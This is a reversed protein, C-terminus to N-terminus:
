QKKLENIDYNVMDVIMQKFEKDGDPVFNIMKIAESSDGWINDNKRPRVLEQKIQIHEEWNLGQSTFAIDLVDLVSHCMESSFLLESPEHQMQTYYANVFTSARSWDRRAYIDGLQLATKPQNVVKDAVYKTIKRTLFHPKRYPHEHSFSIANYINAGKTRFYLCAFDVMNKAYAYPTYPKRRTDLSVMQNTVEGFVESSSAQFFKTKRQHKAVYEIMALPTYYNAKITYDPMDLSDPSFTIGGFNYIEDLPFLSIFQNIAYDDCLDLKVWRLNDHKYSPLAKHYTGIVEYNKSLLLETMLRGDMGTAGIILARMITFVYRNGWYTSRVFTEAL